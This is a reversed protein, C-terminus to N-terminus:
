LGDVAKFSKAKPNYCFWQKTNKDLYIPMEVMRIASSLM